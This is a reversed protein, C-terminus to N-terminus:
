CGRWGPPLLSSDDSTRSQGRRCGRLGQRAACGQPRGGGPTPERRGVRRVPSAGM